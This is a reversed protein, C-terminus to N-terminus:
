KVKKLTKFIPKLEKFVREYSNDARFWGTKLNKDLEIHPGQKDIIGHGIEKGNLLVKIGNPNGPIGQVIHATGGEFPVPVVHNGLGLNGGPYAKEVAARYAERVGQYRIDNQYVDKLTLIKVGSVTKEDTIPYTEFKVVRGGGTNELVVNHTGGYSIKEINETVSVPPEPTLPLHPIHVPEPVVETDGLAYRRSEIEHTRLRIEDSLTQAEATIRANEVPNDTEANELIIDEYQDTLHELESRSLPTKFQPPEENILTSREAFVTKPAHELDIFRGPAEHAMDIVPPQMMKGGVEKSTFAHLVRSQSVKDNELLAHSTGDARNYILEGQKNLELSDGPHGLGGLGTKPDYMGFKQALKEPSLDVIEKVETPMEKGEYETLLKGKMDAFTRIFGNQSVSVKTDVMEVTKPGHSIVGPTKPAGQLEAAEVSQIGMGKQISKWIGTDLPVMDPAFHSALVNSGFGTGVTTGLMVAGKYIKQRKKVRVQEELSRMLAREKNAYNAMDLEATYADMSENERRENGKQQHSDMAKGAFKGTMVSAGYRVGRYGAYTAASTVGFTGVALGGVTLLATICAARKSAPFKNITELFKDKKEKINHEESFKELAKGVRGKEEQMMSELLDNCTAFEAMAGDRLEMMLGIKREETATSIEALLQENRRGKAAIYEAEAQKLEPSWTEPNQKDAIGLKAWQKRLFSKQKKYKSLETVYGLRAELINQEISEKVEQELVDGPKTPEPQKTFDIDERPTIPTPIVDDLTPVNPQVSFDIEEEPPITAPLVEDLTPVPSDQIEPQVSFDIEENESVPKPIIKDLSPYASNWMRLIRDREKDQLRDDGEVISKAHDENRSNKLDVLLGQLKNRRKESLGKIYSIIQPPVYGESKNFLEHIDAETTIPEPSDEPPEPINLDVHEFRSLNQRSHHIPIITEGKENTPLKTSTLEAELSVM